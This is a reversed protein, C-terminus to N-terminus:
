LLLLIETTNKLQDKIYLNTFYKHILNIMSYITLLKNNYFEFKLIVSINLTLQM